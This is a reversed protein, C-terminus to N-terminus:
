ESSESQHLGWDLEGILFFWNQQENSCLHVQATVRSSQKEAARRQAEWQLKRNTAQKHSEVNASASTLIGLIPGLKAQELEYVSECVYSKNVGTAAPTISM